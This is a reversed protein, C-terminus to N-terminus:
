NLSRPIGDTGDPKDRTRQREGRRVVGNPIKSVRERKVLAPRLELRVYVIAWCGFLGFETHLRALHGVRRRRRMNDLLPVDSRVQRLPCVPSPVVGYAQTVPVNVHLRFARDDLFAVLVLVAIVRIRFVVLLEVQVGTLLRLCIDAFDPERATM